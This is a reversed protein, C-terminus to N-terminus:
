AGQHGELHLKQRALAASQRRPWRGALHRLLDAGFRREENMRESFHFGLYLFDEDTLLKEALLRSKLDRPNEALLGAAYELAPDSARSGRSRSKRSIKLAALMLKYRLDSNLLGGRELLGLNAVAAQYDRGSFASEALKLIESQLTDPKLQKLTEWNLEFRRDGRDRMELLRRVRNRAREASIVNRRGSLIRVADMVRLSPLNDDIAKLVVNVASPMRALSELAADKLNQDSAVLFSLLREANAPSDLDALKRIAYVRVGPHRNNLLGFLPEQDEKGPVLLSLVAVAHRVLGDYDPDDLLSWLLSALDPHSGSSLPLAGLSILANRRVQSSAEPSVFPMLATKARVDAVIGLSVIIAQLANENQRLRNDKLAAGLLGFVDAKEAQDYASIEERLTRVAERMLELDPHFLCDVFFVHASHSRIRPLVRVIRRQTDQPSKDFQQKLAPVIKAGMRAIADVVRTQDERAKDLSKVLQRLVQEHPSAELASLAAEFIERSETEVMLDALTKHIAPERSNVAGLVRIASLRLSQDESYILQQISKLTANM